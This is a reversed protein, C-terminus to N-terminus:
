PERRKIWKYINLGRDYSYVTSINKEKLGFMNLCDAWDALNAGYFNLTNILTKKNEIIIDSSLVSGIYKSIVQRDLLYASRLVWEIESIVLSTTMLDRNEKLLKISKESNIGKRAFIEIFVNTDIFKYGM